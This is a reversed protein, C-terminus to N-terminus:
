SAPPAGQEEFAALQRKLQAIKQERMALFEAWDLRDWAGSVQNFCGCDGGVCGCRSDCDSGTTPLRANDRLGGRALETILNVVENLSVVQEQEAM